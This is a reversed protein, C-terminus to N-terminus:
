IMESRDLSVDTIKEVTIKAQKKKSSQSESNLQQSSSGNDKLLIEPNKVLFDVLMQLAYTSLSLGIVSKKKIQEILNEFDEETQIRTQPSYKEQVVNYKEFLDNIISQDLQGVEDASNFFRRFVYEGTEPDQMPLQVVAKSLIQREIEKSYVVSNRLDEDNEKKIRGVIVDTTRAIDQIDRQSLVRIAIRIESFGPFEFEEFHKRGRMIAQLDDFTFQQEM